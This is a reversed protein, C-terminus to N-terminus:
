WREGGDLSECLRALEEFRSTITASEGQALAIEFAEICEDLYSREGEDVESWLAQARFLLDKNRPEEARDQKLKALRKQFTAVAKNDVSKGSRHLVTAFTKGTEAITAEVELLGDLDFTFRVLINQGAPGKPIGKVTLAGVLHNESVRRHEGEYVNLNMETQNREITSFTSTRTVPVTTNRHIVPSFFGNVHRGAIEKSAELGLSHSIIDTVVIDLDGGGQDKCLAAQIAAGKAVILDPDLEVMPPKGFYSQVFDRVCPMRSAGGVLVIEDLSDIKVGAGRLAVRCAQKMRDLLPAFAQDAQAREITLTQERKDSGFAPVRLQGEKWSTLQRKLLEARRSLIAYDSAFTRATSVEIEAIRLGLEVLAQTFDEGGLRSEGAVGKVELLGEFLEMVCVDFTGGGLDFILFQSEEDRKQLGYAIAAATPENLIREVTMGALTAAKHTAQRQAEGFYAPVTVVCRDITVGLEREADERVSDLIHASLEIPGLKRSGLKYSRDEGMDRKFAAAANDPKMSLIEKAGRGVFLQKKEPDLAVVSPTLKHGLANSIYVAEGERFVAAVTNTTGLDIGLIESSM